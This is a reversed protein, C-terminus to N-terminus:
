TLARSRVTTTWIYIAYVVRNILVGFDAWPCGRRSSVAICFSTRVSLHM